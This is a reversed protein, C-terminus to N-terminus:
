VNHTKPLTRQLKACAAHQPCSILHDNVMGTSQMFAYVTTPGIFRFGEKKLAKSITKSLETQSPVDKFAKARNIIPRGDIFGWLFDSLSTHTSLALMAKANDITANIKLRNRVIGADNMLRAVDKDTYRAIRKPAFGHFAARFNDRKKLITLWSLGSQFGELILKEFLAISDTKPVGWEEDHYRTYIPDNIGPWPCRLQNSEPNETETPPM